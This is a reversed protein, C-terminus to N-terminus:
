TPLGDDDELQGSLKKCDTIYATVVVSWHSVPFDFSIFDDARSVPSSKVDECSFGRGQWGQDIDWGVRHPHHIPHDLDPHWFLSFASVM